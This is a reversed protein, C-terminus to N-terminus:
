SRLRRLPDVTLLALDVLTDASKTVAKATDETARRAKLAARRAREHRAALEQQRRREERWANREEDTCDDDYGGKGMTNGCAPAGSALVRPSALAGAPAGLLTVATLLKTFQSKM